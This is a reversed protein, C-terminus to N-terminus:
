MSSVLRNKGEKRSLKLLQEVIDILKNVPEGKYHRVGASVGIKINLPYDGNELYYQIREGVVVGKNPNLDPSIIMFVDDDYRGVTDTRRVSRELIKAAEVIVAKKVKEGYVSEIRDLGDIGILIVSLFSPIRTMRKVEYELVTYLSKRNFLSTEEDIVNLEMIKEKLERIDDAMEQVKKLLEDMSLNSYEEM